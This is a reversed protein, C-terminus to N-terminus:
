QLVPSCSHGGSQKSGFGIASVSTAKPIRKLDRWLLFSLFVRFRVGTKQRLLLSKRRALAVHWQCTAGLAMARYASGKSSTEFGAISSFVSVCLLTNRNKPASPPIQVRAFFGRSAQPVVTECIVTGIKTGFDLQSQKEKSRKKRSKQPSFHM